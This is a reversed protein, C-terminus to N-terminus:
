KVKITFKDGGHHKLKVDKKYYLTILSKIEPDKYRSSVPYINFLHFTRRTDNLLLVNKPTFFKKKIKYERYKDFQSILIIEYDPFIEELEEKSLAKGNEYFKLEDRDYNLTRNNYTFDYGYVSLLLLSFIAFFIKKM